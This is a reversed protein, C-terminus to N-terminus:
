LKQKDAWSRDSVEMDVEIPVYEEVRSNKMWEPVLLALRELEDKPADIAVEDHVQNVIHSRMGEKALGHHVAIIADRQLEAASGQILYNLLASEARKIGKKKEVAPDHTIPRDAISLIHGRDHYVELIVNMLDRAGPMGAKLKKLLVKAEAESCGLQRVLTPVGGMYIISFNGTKGVQRENDSLERDDDIGLMIKATASHPDIGAKFNECMTEDGLQAALYYALLRYEIQSYDFFVLYDQKPVFARKILKNKRPINQFNM